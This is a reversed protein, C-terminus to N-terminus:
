SLAGAHMAIFMPEQTHDRIIATFEMVSMNIATLAVFLLASVDMIAHGM